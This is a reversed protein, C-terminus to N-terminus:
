AYWRPFPAKALREVEAWVWAPCHEHILQQYLGDEEGHQEEPDDKALIADVRDRLELPTM